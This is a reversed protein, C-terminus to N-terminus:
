SHCGSYVNERPRCTGHGDGGATAAVSRWGTRDELVQLAEIELEDTMAQEVEYGFDAAVLTATDVDLAQNLTALVGLGMLKAIVENAKVGMRKALEGVSITEVVKIRKKIAKTEAVPAQAAQEKRGGDKKKRGQRPRMFEFDGGRTFDIRTKGQKLAKVSKKGHDDQDTQM